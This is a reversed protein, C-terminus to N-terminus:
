RDFLDGLGPIQFGQGLDGVQEGFGTLHEEGSQALGEVGGGLGEVGEALGDLGFGEALGDFDVGSALADGLLPAAAASLAAGGAVAVALGGLAGVGLGAAAGAAAAGARGSGRGTSGQAAGRGGLVRQLLGPHATEGRTAARALEDSGDGRPREHAPLEDTLRARVQERQAPSLREFAERHVQELQDPRATRVLYDYKALAVADDHAPSGPRQGRPQQHQQHQQGGREQGHDVQGQGDGTLRDAATRVLDRWDASGGRQGRQPSGQRSSPTSSSDGLARAAAGFLRSFDPM